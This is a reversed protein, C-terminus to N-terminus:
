NECRWYLSRHLEDKRKCGSGRWWSCGRYEPFKFTQSSYIISPCGLLNKVTKVALDAGGYAMAANIKEVGVGSIRVRTDRPISLIKFDKNKKDISAVIITDSRHRNYEEKAGITGEDLGFLVINQRGGKVFEDTSPINSDPDPEIPDNLGKFVYYFGSGMSLIIFLFVALAIKLPRKM